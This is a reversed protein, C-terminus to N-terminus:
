ENSGDESVDERKLQKKYPPGETQEYDSEYKYVDDPKLQNNITKEQQLRFILSELNPFVEDGAAHLAVGGDRRYIKMRTVKTDNKFSLREERNKNFYLIWTGKEKDALIGKAEIQSINFFYQDENETEKEAEPDVNVDEASCHDEEEHNSIALRQLPEILKAMKPEKNESHDVIESNQDDKPRVM